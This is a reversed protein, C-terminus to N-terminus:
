FPLDLSWAGPGLVILALAMALLALDFEYGGLFGKIFKVKWIRVLIEVAFLIAVLQTLFGLILFIGGFFELAGAMRVWFKGPKLGISELFQITPFLEKFLKPYGHVVFIAGLALRLWLPAFNEFVFLQPLLSLM